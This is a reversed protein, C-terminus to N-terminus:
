LRTTDEASRSQSDKGIVDAAVAEDDGFALKLKAELGRSLEDVSNRLPSSLDDGEASFKRAAPSCAGSSSESSAEADDEDDEDDDGGEGDDEEDESRVRLGPSGPSGPTAPSKGGGRKKKLKQLCNSVVFSYRL